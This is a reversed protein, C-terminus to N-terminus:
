RVPQSSPSLERAAAYSSAPRWRWSRNLSIRGRFSGDKFDDLSAGWRGRPGSRNNQRYSDAPRPAKATKISRKRIGGQPGNALIREILDADLRREHHRFLRDM